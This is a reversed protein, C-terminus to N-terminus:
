KAKQAPLLARYDQVYLDALDIIEEQTMTEIWLHAWEDEVVAVKFGAKKATRIAYHADEFIWVQSKPAVDATASQAQADDPLARSGQSKPAVDATASQAQADDPLARSGQSKSAVDPKDFGLERLATHYILPSEKGEGVERCTLIVDFFDYIGNRHLAPEMLHRDTATALALPVKANKLATLFEFAGPKLVVEDRYGRAIREWNYPLPQWIHMSNLLTGDLDFIVAKPTHGNINM